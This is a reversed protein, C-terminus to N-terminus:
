NPIFLRALQQIQQPNGLEKNKESAKFINKKRCFLLICYKSITFLLQLTNSKRLVSYDSVAAASCVEVAVAGRGM